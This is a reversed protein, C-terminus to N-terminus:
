GVGGSSGARQRICGQTMGLTPLDPLRFVVYMCLLPVNRARNCVQPGPVPGAVDRRVCVSSSRMYEMYLGHGSSRLEACAFSLATFFEDLYMVLVIDPVLGPSLFPPGRPAHYPSHTGLGSLPSTADHLLPFGVVARLSSVSERTSAWTVIYTRRPSFQRMRICLHPITQLCTSYLGPVLRIASSESAHKPAYTIINPAHLSYHPLRMMLPRVRSGLDAAHCPLTSLSLLFSQWSELARSAPARM